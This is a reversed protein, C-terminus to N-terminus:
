CARSPTPGRTSATASSITNARTTAAPDGERLLPRLQAEARVDDHDTVAFVPMGLARVRALLEAPEDTGDSCSTHMHLDMKRIDM